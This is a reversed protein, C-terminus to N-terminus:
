GFLDLWFDDNKEEVTMFALAVGACGKLSLKNKEFRIEKYQELCNNIFKNIQPMLGKCIKAQRILHKCRLLWLLTYSEDTEKEIIGSQSIIQLVQKISQETAKKTEKSYCDSIAMQILSLTYEPLCETSSITPTFSNKWDQIKKICKVIKDNCIDLCFLKCLFSLIDPLDQEAYENAQELLNVVHIITERNSVLHADEIASKRNIIRSLFYHGLGILGNDKSFNEHPEYVIAHSIKKDFDNLIENTDIDLFRNQTLYEIGAGIGALGDEYDVPSDWHIEAQIQGIIEAAYKEFLENRTYQAYHFFFIAVGMRGHFLGSNKLLSGNLLLMDAIKKINEAIFSKNNQRTTM